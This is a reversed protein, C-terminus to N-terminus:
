AHYTHEASEHVRRSLNRSSSAWHGAGDVSAGSIAAGLASRRRGHDSVSAGSIATGLASRQKTENDHWHCALGRLNCDHIGPREEQVAKCHDHHGAIPHTGAGVVPLSCLSSTLWSALHDISSLRLSAAHPRPRSSSPGVAPNPMMMLTTSKRISSRFTTSERVSSRTTSSPRSTSESEADAESLEQLAIEYDEKSDEPSMLFIGVCIIVVGLLFGVWNTTGFADFEGFYIGGSVIAFLIFNVQRSPWLLPLCLSQATGRTSSSQLGPYVQLLPIIFLPDFLSLAENMRFLWVATFALWAILIVYIFWGLFIQETGELQASLLESLCKALVVSFTGFLASFSAYTIPLVNKSNWLPENAEAAKKYALHTTQLAVGLGIALVIYALWAPQYWRRILGASDEELTTKAGSLVTLITGIVTLLTGVYMHPTINSDFVIKGFIINTM